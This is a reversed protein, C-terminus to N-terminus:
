VLIIEDMLADDGDRPLLFLHYELELERAGGMLGCLWQVCGGGGARRGM